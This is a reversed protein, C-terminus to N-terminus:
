AASRKGSYLSPLVGFRSRFNAAFHSTDSYGIRAAVQKVSQGERLLDAALDLQAPIMVDRRYSLGLANLRRQLARANGLRMATASATVSLDTENRLAIGVVARLRTIFQRDAPEMRADVIPQRASGERQCSARLMGTAPCPEDTIRWSGGTEREIESVVAALRKAGAASPEEFIDPYPLTAKLHLMGRVSSSAELRGSSAELELSADVLRLLDKSTVPAVDGWLHCTIEEARLYFGISLKGGPQMMRLLASGAPKILQRALSEWHPVEIDTDERQRARKPGYQDLIFRRVLSRGRLELEIGRKQAEVELRHLHPYALQEFPVTQRRRAPQGHDLPIRSLKFPPRPLNDAKLLYPQIVAFSDLIRAICFTDLGYEIGPEWLARAYAAPDILSAARERTGGLGFLQNAGLDKLITYDGLRSIQEPTPEKPRKM